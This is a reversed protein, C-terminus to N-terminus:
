ITAAQFVENWKDENIQARYWDYTGRKPADDESPAGEEDDSSIPVLLQEHCFLFADVFDDHGGDPAAYRIRGTRENREGVYTRFENRQEPCDIFKVAGSKLLWGGSRVYREKNSAGWIHPTVHENKRLQLTRVMADGVGNADAQISPNGYHKRVGILFDQQEEYEEGKLAFLAVQHGTDQRFVTIVTSDLKRAWDVGILYTVSRLVKLDSFWSRVGEPVIKADLAVERVWFPQGCDLAKLCFAKALPGFVGGVSDPFRGEREQIRAVPDHEYEKDMEVLADDDLWPNADSPFNMGAWNDWEGSQSTARAWFTEFWYNGVGSIDPTGIVLLSGGIDLLMPLVVRSVCEGRVLAAEDVVLRHFAHPIGRVANYHPHKASWFYIRAGLNGVDELGDIMMPKLQIYRGQGESKQIETILSDPNKKPDGGYAAVFVDMVAKAKTHDQEFVGAFYMGPTRAAEEMFLFGITTTKGFRRGVPAVVRKYQLCLHLLLVQGGLGLENRHDRRAPLPKRGAIRSDEPTLWGNHPRADVDLNIIHREDAHLEQRRLDLTPAWADGEAMLALAQRRTM